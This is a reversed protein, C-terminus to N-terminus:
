KQQPNQSPKGPPSDPIQATTTIRLMQQDFAEEKEDSIVTMKITHTEVTAFSHTVFLERCDHPERRISKTNGSGFDFKAEIIGPNPCNGPDSANDGDHTDTSPKFTLPRNPRSTSVKQGNDLIELHAIPPLNNLPDSPDSTGSPSPSPQTPNADSSNPDNSPNKPKGVLDDDTAGDGPGQKARDKGGVFEYRATKCGAVLLTAMAILFAQSYCSRLLRNLKIVYDM